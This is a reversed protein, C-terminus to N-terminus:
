HSNAVKSYYINGLIILGPGHKRGTRVINPPNDVISVFGPEDAAQKSQLATGSICRYASYLWVTRSLPKQTAARATQHLITRSISMM